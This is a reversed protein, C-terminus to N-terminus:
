SKQIFSQVEEPSAPEEAPMEKNGQRYPLGALKRLQKYRKESMFGMHVVVLLILVISTWVWGKNWLQMMFPLALGTLGLVLFSISMINITSSSLDLLARIRMLEKEKRLQTLWLRRHVM